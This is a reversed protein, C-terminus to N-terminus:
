MVSERRGSVTIKANATAQSVAKLATMRLACRGGIITSAKVHSEINASACLCNNAAKVRGINWQKDKAHTDNTDARVTDDVLLCMVIQCSWHLLVLDYYMEIDIDAM